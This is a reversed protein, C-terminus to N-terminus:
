NPESVRGYLEPRRDAIRDIVFKNPVRVIRKTRAREVDVDAYLISENTNPVEALVKGYPDCIKSKGIFSFGREVGIRNVSAYYVNNEMARANIVHEATCEGGLPFNTPLVILDAGDLSMIRASEPFASDYCINMGVRMGDVDHVAFPRDGPDAFRDVGLFPLHIKRYSNVVGNPGVLVCANFLKDDDVELMGMVVFVGLTRCAELLKECSPGSISEAYAMAETRSDFCYGTLACEPFVTLHAGVSKTQELFDLIRTLNAQPKGIEIDM